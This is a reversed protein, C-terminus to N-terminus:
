LGLAKERDFYLPLYEYVSSYYLLQIQELRTASGSVELQTALGNELAVRALRYAKEATEVTM